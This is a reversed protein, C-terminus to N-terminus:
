AFAAKASSRQHYLDSREVNIAKREKEVKASHDRSGRNCIKVVDILITLRRLLDNDLNGFGYYRGPFISGGPVQAGGRYPICGRGAVGRWPYLSFWARNQM